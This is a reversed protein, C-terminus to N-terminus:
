LLKLCILQLIKLMQLIYYRRQFNAIIAFYLQAKKQKGVVKLVTDTLSEGILSVNSKMECIATINKTMNWSSKASDFIYVGIPIFIVGGGNNHVLNILTQLEESNDKNKPNLGYDIANYVKKNEELKNM